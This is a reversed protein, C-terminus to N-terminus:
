IEDLKKLARDLGSFNPKRIKRPAGNPSRAKVNSNGLAARSERSSPSSTGHSDIFDKDLSDAIIDLNDDNAYTIIQRNGSSTAKLLPLSEAAGNRDLIVEVERIESVKAGAGEIKEGVSYLNSKKKGSQIIARAISDDDAWLIGQLTLDLTTKPAKKVVVPAPTADGFLKASIIQRVQYPAKRVKTVPSIQQPTYNDARTQISSRVTIGAHVLMWCLCAIAIAWAIKPGHQQVLRSNMITDIQQM